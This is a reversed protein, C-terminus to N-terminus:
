TRASKWGHSPFKQNGRALVLSECRPLSNIFRIGRRPGMVFVSTSLADADMATDALVSVSTADHPSRGTAPNVIHHFMKERDFYIEYNGSTAIAGNTMHIIDPYQRQKEPDQIAVTWPRKDRAHGRTRIDGGANILHNQIGHGSLIASTRDVIYGKAIGDLTIGMGPREFRIVGGSCHIRRADVLTLAKRVQDSAPPTSKGQSFRAKFLDVVPKISIDFAGGSLNHFKMSRAMVEAVEPPIDKLVGEHNLQAVATSSDFRSMIRTLRDIEDFAEGMAQQAEDRSSHLLTMSVFTGMTLRTKSVKYLRRDFRLAEASVPVAAVSLIGAGLIGSLKLFSRRDVPDNEIFFRNITDM